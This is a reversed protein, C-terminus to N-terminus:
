ERSQPARLSQDLLSVLSPTDATHVDNVRWHGRVALLDLRVTQPKGFNLFRVSAAARGDAVAAIKVEVATIEFEQCDCIPDGDLAGVDGKPTHAAERRMLRLLSPSFVAGAQRGLYDPGHGHYAAFLGRVFAQAGAADQAVAAAPTAALLAAFALRGARV